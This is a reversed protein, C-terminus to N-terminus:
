RDPHDSTEFSNPSVVELAAAPRCRRRDRNRRLRPLCLARYRFRWYCCCDRRCWKRDPSPSQSKWGASARRSRSRRIAVAGCCRHAVTDTYEHAVADSQQLTLTGSRCPRGESSGDVPDRVSFGDDLRQLLIEIVNEKLKVQRMDMNEAPPASVSLPENTERDRQETCVQRWLVANEGPLLLPTEWM